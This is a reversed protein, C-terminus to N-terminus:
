RSGSYYKTVTKYASTASKGALGRKIIAGGIQGLLSTGLNILEKELPTSLHNSEFEAKKVQATLLRAQEPLMSEQYRWMRSLHQLELGKMELEKLRFYADQGRTDYRDKLLYADYYAALIPLPVKSATDSSSLADNISMMKGDIEVMGTSLAKRQAVDLSALENSLSQATQKALETDKQIKWKEVELDHQARQLEISASDKSIQSDAKRGEIDLRRSELDLRKLDNENQKIRLARDKANAIGEQIVGYTNSVLTFMSLLGQIPAYPDQSQDPATVASDSSTAVPGAAQMGAYYNLGADQYQQIQHAISNYDEDYAQMESNFRNQEAANLADIESGYLLRQLFNGSYVLPNQVGQANIDGGAVSYEHNTLKNVNDKIGQSLNRWWQTNVLNNSAGKKSFEGLFGFPVFLDRALRAGRSIKQGSYIGKM